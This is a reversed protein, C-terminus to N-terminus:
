VIQKDTFYVLELITCLVLINSLNINGKPKMTSWTLNVLDDTFDM